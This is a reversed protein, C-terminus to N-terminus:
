SESGLAKEIAKVFAKGEAIILNTDYYDAYKRQLAPHETVIIEEYDVDHEFLGGQPRPIVLFRKIERDHHQGLQYFEDGDLYRVYRNLMTGNIECALDIIAAIDRGQLPPRLRITHM